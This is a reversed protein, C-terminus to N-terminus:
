IVVNVLRGPVVIVKRAPRGAAASAFADSALALSEVTERTAGAPVTVSGRLKGNIQLMLEIEQRELAAPDVEPWPADLLDGFTQAYDLETWLVYSIHPTAPYLCRLLIAYCEDLVAISAASATDTFTELANLMKMAGSVVTNYQMRQYDYDIQKLVTHIELRLARAQPGAADHGSATGRLQALRYGFNWVRRLFRYSGEVAADNWELTAEPPATFMTYLRATDAGYKEILDQPDVGNNKSKSMTGVGEYTIPTGAPLDGHAHRLRAGCVKGASDLVDEVDHPWFYEIGGKESKRSYIHNLVMGQTLLRTFPENVRVLELDRMVKTWFRAYLLHLIAHEIGGIYQDMPMWYSAGDSVMKETNGPDCYRMFYWSSDVFTDMTDTERRASKGCIPCSVGEHFAVHRNLPNGTGDPVCDLPLLVPLDKEPVAVAGHEACHIIPIPTGWYRQRSIGWDRLRWTVKKEGLGLKELAVAVADVADKYALGSFVDSNVTVGRQKDAYWDQWLSHDYQLGDVHVVDYIPLGYKKAFAFDREDHAPVGMVAGDGYGMLVYNGVWVEISRRTLPHVVSLGTRMGLKDRAALEAETTGGAKCDEIFRALPENGSSAQQALPHEPAVACFTVGMITDARTTFVYMCGDGILQGASDRIDHTFAFRVGESRGIWNEQMLKVREPWGPLGEHVQKLLDEAYDTIKLYYGPIERRQVVAGTRWGKGDIVQENALVTQDVPDWNVIQTKRYAIGKELMKLFLWQNWKYYAPDCTAV